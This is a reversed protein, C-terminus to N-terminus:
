TQPMPQDRWSTTFRTMIIHIPMYFWVMQRQKPVPASHIEGNNDTWSATYHEGAMPKFVIYGMGKYKTSFSDVVKNSSNKLVGQLTVPKNHQNLAEFALISTVGNVLDGGEPFFNITTQNKEAVPNVGEIPMLVPIDKNYLFANDFNLM